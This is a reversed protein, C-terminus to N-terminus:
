QSKQWHESLYNFFKLAGIGNLHVPDAFDSAKFLDKKNLDILQAGGENATVQLDKLYTAYVGAPLLDLNKQQLPMNVLIVHTGREKAQRLLERAFGLQNALVSAKFPQYRQRYELSNDVNNLPKQGYPKTQWEGPANDDLYKARYGNFSGAGGATSGITPGGTPEPLCSSLSKSVASQVAFLYQARRAYISSVSALTKDVRMWLPMNGTKLLDPDGKIQSMYQVIRSDEPEPFTADLFDRPAVGWIITKPVTGKALMAAYIAYADSAMEGGIVFSATTIKEGLMTLLKYEFYQSRWHLLADLTHNLFTADGDNQVAMMLSSGLLITDAKDQRHRFYNVAWWIWSRGASAYRDAPLFTKSATDLGVFVLLAGVTCALALRGGPKKPPEQLHNIRATASTLQSTPM